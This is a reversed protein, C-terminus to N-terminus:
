GRIKIKVSGSVVKVGNLKSITYNLDFISFRKEIKAVECNYLLEDDIYVPQIFKSEQSLILANEGPLEMGVAYSLFSILLFGQAIINNFGSKLSYDYDTHLPHYDGTMSSFETILERSIIKSFTFQQGTYLDEIKFKKIM